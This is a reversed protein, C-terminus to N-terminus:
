VRASVCYLPRLRRNDTSCDLRTSDDLGALVRGGGDGGGGHRQVPVLKDGRGRTAVARIM